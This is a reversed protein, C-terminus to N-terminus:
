DKKRSESITIYLQKQRLLAREAIIKFADEVNINSMASAEIFLM